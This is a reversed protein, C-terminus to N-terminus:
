TCPEPRAHTKELSQRGLPGRLSGVGFSRARCLSRRGVCMAARIWAMHGLILYYPEIGKFYQDNKSYRLSRFREDELM